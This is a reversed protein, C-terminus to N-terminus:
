ASSPMRSQRKDRPSPSTYLLCSSYLNTVPPRGSIGIRMVIGITHVLLGLLLLGMAIRGVSVRWRPLPIFCWSLVAMLFSLIYISITLYFPSAVNYVLELRNCVSSYFTPPQQNVSALYTELTQNFTEADGALYAPKLKMLLALNESVSVEDAIERNGGNSKTLISM